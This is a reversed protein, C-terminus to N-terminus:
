KGLAIQIPTKKDANLEFPSVGKDLFIKNLKVMRKMFPVVGNVNPKYAAIYHLVNNGNNDRAHPNAKLWLWWHFISEPIPHMPPCM